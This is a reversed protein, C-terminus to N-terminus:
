VVSSSYNSRRAFTKTRVALDTKLDKAAVIDFRLLPRFLSDIGEDPMATSYEDGLVGVRVTIKSSETTLPEIGIWVDTGDAFQSKMRASLNDHADEIIPLNLAKLAAVTADHCASAEANGDAAVAGEGPPKLGPTCM